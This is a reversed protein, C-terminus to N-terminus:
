EKVPVTVVLVSIFATPPNLELAGICVSVNVPPPSVVPRITAPNTLELSNITLPCM